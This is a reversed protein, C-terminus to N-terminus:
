NSATFYVRYSGDDSDFGDVFGYFKEGKNGGFQAIEGVTQNNATYNNRGCVQESNLDTCTKRVALVADFQASFYTRMSANSINEKLEIEYVAEPSDKGGCSHQHSGKNLDGTDGTGNQWANNTAWLPIPVPDACTGESIDVSLGYKGAAGNYGDVILFFQDGQKVPFSLVEGGKASRDQNFRDECNIVSGPNNCNSLAYLMSDYDTNDGDIWATFFGTAQAQVLYVRDPSNQEGQCSNGYGQHSGGGITTGKVSVTTKGVQLVIGDGCGTGGLKCNTDCGDSNNSNGDDCEEDPEVVKDGCTGKCGSTDHSCDNGCSLGTGNSFGYDTCSKGGLDSGDCDEGTELKQGDCSSKCGSSDWDCNSDCVLGAGESFGYDQCSKGGLDSGDCNEGPELLSGDCTAKCGATDFFCGACALGPASSYGFDSCSKGALDQDDCEEGDDLMGNGCTEPTVPGGGSGGASSTSPSTGGSGSVSVGNSNSGGSASTGATQDGGAGASGTGFVVENSACGPTVAMLWVAVAGLNLGYKM